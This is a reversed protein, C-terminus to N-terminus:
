RERYLITVEASGSVLDFYIGVDVECPLWISDGEYVTTSPLIVTGAAAIDDYIRIVGSSSSAVFVGGFYGRGTLVLGDASLVKKKFFDTAAPFPM